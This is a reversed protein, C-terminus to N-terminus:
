YLESFCQQLQSVSIFYYPKNVTSSVVAHSTREADAFYVTILDDYRMVVVEFVGDTYVLSKLVCGNNKIVDFYPKLREMRKVMAELASVKSKNVLLRTLIMFLLLEQRM